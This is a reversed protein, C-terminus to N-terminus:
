VLTVAGMMTMVVLTVNTPMFDDRLTLATASWGKDEPYPGALRDAGGQGDRRAAGPAGGPEMSAFGLVGRRRRACEGLNRAQPVWLQSLQPFQFRPPMVGVVTHAAANITITRGVISPDASYRRRWLGDSVLVVPSGGATDEEARFQRGLVPQVGLMPF